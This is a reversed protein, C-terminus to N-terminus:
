KGNKSLHQYNAFCQPGSERDFPDHKPEWGCRICIKEYCNQESKNRILHKRKSITKVFHPAIKLFPKRDYTEITVVSLNHWASADRDERFPQYYNEVKRYDETRVVKYGFKELCEQLFSFGVNSGLWQIVTAAVFRDRATLIIRPHYPLLLNIPTREFLLRLLDTRKHEFMWREAFVRERINFRCREVLWGVNFFKKISNRM